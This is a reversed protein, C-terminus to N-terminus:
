KNSPIIVLSGQENKIFELEHTMQLINIISQISKYKSLTGSYSNDKVKPSIIIDINYWRELKRAISSLPENDFAFLDNKWALVNEMEVKSINHQQSQNNVNFQQLPSLKALPTGDKKEMEIKGTILSISTTPENSFNRVNFSTGTVHIRNQNVNVYFPRNKEKSVELYAEGSITIERTKSSFHEPFSLQTDSNLWIKTGEELVIFYEGGRPVTLHNVAMKKESASAVYLNHGTSDVVSVGNATRLQMSNNLAISNGNITLIATTKGPLVKQGDFVQYSKELPTSKDPLLSGVALSILFLAAIGSAWQWLHIPHPKIRKRQLEQWGKEVDIKEYFSIKSASNTTIENFIRQNKESSSIWEELEESKEGSQLYESIQNAIKVSYIIDKKM